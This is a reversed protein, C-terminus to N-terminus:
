VVVKATRPRFIWAPWLVNVEVDRRLVQSVGDYAVFKGWHFQISVLLIQEKIEKVRIHTVGHLEGGRKFEVVSIPAIVFYKILFRNEANKKM